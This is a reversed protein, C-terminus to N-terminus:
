RSDVYHQEFYHHALRDTYEDLNDQVTLIRCHDKGGNAPGRLGRGAMQMYLSPSFVPRAIVILDTAPADFGTTLASHNCLVRVDGRRFAAIFWRRSNRDTEGSVAAASVGELNLRAALRRAHAVSTAFVLASKEPAACIEEVIRDNRERIEGLRELASVPVQGFRALSSQEEATFTFGTDIELRDYTFRALVGRDQLREFLTSQDGPILRGDFRRALQASEEENRGRFPTASLGIIPPERGGTSAGAGPNLWRLAGTYSPTLAHHCEDIVLLAPDSAWALGEDVMRSSLTQISAVIVTPEGAASPRPTVQGGWLRVIRLTEGNSGLNVWLERFCQVAQECLEDTQAIWLVLRNEGARTLIRTVATQAAVRTKGAGTPLSIVARRRKSATDSLLADISGVVEEQFDHLPKLPLPGTVALEPERRRDPPAAFEAPFGIEAVFTMALEGGWRAPPGLGEREMADRVAPLALLAPGFMTLALRAAEEPKGSLEMRIDDEFLELLTTEGCVRLLRSHLDAASAVERRRAESGQTLILALVDGENVWGLAHAGDILWGIRERWSARRYMSELVVLVGGIAAWPVDKTEPGISQHLTEAFAFSATAHADVRIAERLMPEAELLLVDTPFAPSRQWKTTAVESLDSAGAARWLDVGALDLSICAVGASCAMAADRASSTVHVSSIPIVGDGWCIADPAQGEAAALAYFPTLAPLGSVDGEALGLWGRWVEEGADPSRWDIGIGALCRLGSGLDNLSPLLSAKEIMGECLLQSGTIEREGLCLRGKDLVLSWVPHPYSEKRYADPRSSHRFEVPRAHLFNAEALGALIWRTLTGALEPGAHLLMEWGVPMWLRDARLLNIDPRRDLSAHYEQVWESQWAALWRGATTERREGPQWQQWSVADSTDLGLETLLADDSSHWAEDLFLLELEERAEGALSPLDCASLLADNRLVEAPDAWGGLTRVMIIHDELVEVAEDWPMRRLLKWMETWDDSSNARSATTRALRQWDTDHDDRVDFRDRLIRRLDAHGGVEPHVGLLPPEPMDGLVVESATALSGDATPIIRLRDRIGSWIHSAVAAGYADALELAPIAGVPDASAASELWDTAATRALRPGSGDKRTALRDALQNLRAVRPQTALCGPHLHRECDEPRAIASWREALPMSDLPARFLESGRHLEGDCDPLVPADVLGSWLASVLPAAPDSATPLERPFADLVIAPDADNALQPLSSVMLAAAKEMLAANWAGPILATRDSNLKWPANLIGLTRTETSTPFFAFFRGAAERQGGVPAAWILPVADRAHVSTADELAAQDTIIATTQFVRWRQTSARDAALDELLVTGDAETRRVLRREVGPARLELDIDQPLFLLFESPFRRIEDTVAERAGSALLEAHIITTAWDFRSRGPVRGVMNDWTQPMAMRLAPVPADDPLELRSRIFERCWDPDFGLCVTRSMVDIRGGLKLLSKFGLGFRGIQGARKGSAHSNLLARVGAKDVPAGSNAAWLGNGDIEVVVRGRSHRDGSESIADAANQVLEAVQRYAYGGALVSTEINSHEEADHPAQQYAGLRESCLRSAYGVLDADTGSLDVSDVTM